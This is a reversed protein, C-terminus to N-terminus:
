QCASHSGLDFSLNALNLLADSLNKAWLDLVFLRLFVLIPLFTAWWHIRVLKLTLLEFTSTVLSILARTASAVHNIHFWEVSPVTTPSM